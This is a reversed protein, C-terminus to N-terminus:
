RAFCPILGVIKREKGVINLTVIPFVNHAFGDYLWIIIGEGIGFEGSCNKPAHCEISEISM